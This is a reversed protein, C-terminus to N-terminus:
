RESLGDTVEEAGNALWSAVIEPYPPEIVTETPRMGVRRHPKGAKALRYDAATAPWDFGAPIRYRKM